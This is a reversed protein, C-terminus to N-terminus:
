WLRSDPLLDDPLSLAGPGRRNRTDQAVLRSQQSARQPPKGVSRASQNRPDHRPRTLRSAVPEPTRVPAAVSKNIPRSSSRGGVDLLAQRSKNATAEESKDPRGGRLPVEGKGTSSATNTVPPLPLRSAQEEPRADRLGDPSPRAVMRDDELRLHDDAETRDSQLATAVALQHQVAELQALASAARTKESEATTKAKLVQTSLSALEEQLATVKLLAHEALTRQETEAITPGTTQRAHAEIDALQERLVLVEEQKEQLSALREQLAAVQLQAAAASSREREFAAQLTLLQVESGAAVDTSSQWALLPLNQWKEPLPSYSDLSAGGRADANNRAPQIDAVEPLRGGSARRGDAFSPLLYATAGVAGLAGIVGWWKRSLASPALRGKHVAGSRWFMQRIM